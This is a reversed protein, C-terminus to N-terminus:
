YADVVRRRGDTENAGRGWGAIKRLRGAKWELWVSTSTSKRGKYLRCVGTSEEGGRKRGLHVQVWGRRASIIFAPM